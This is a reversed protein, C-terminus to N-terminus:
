QHHKERVTILIEQSEFYETNTGHKFVLSIKVVYKGWAGTEIMPSINPQSVTGPWNLRVLFEHNQGPKWVTPRIREGSEGVLYLEYARWRWTSTDDFRRVAAGLDTKPWIGGFWEHAINATVTQHSNNEIKIPLAIVDTQGNRLHLTVPEVFKSMAIVHLDLSTRTLISTSNRDARFPAVPEAGCCIIAFGAVFAVIMKKM